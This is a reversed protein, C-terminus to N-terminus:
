DATEQELQLISLLYVLPNDRYHKQVCRKNEQKRQLGKMNGEQGWSWVQIFCHSAADCTDQIQALMGEAIQETYATGLRQTLSVTYNMM